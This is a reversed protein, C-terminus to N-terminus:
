LGRARRVLLPRALLLGAVFGGIHAGIAIGVGTGHTALGILLQVLTWAAALWLVQGWHSVRKGSRGIQRRSGYLLSYAGVVASVAGSAGIMPVPSNPDGLFQFLAAAYAGVVYILVIGKSGVAMELLKGCYGLMLMNFGLHLAGGHILTATLPTLFVPVAGPIDALGSVRAPIFGGLVAVLDSFGAIEVVLWAIVTAVLIM